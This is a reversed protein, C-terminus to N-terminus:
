FYRFHEDVTLQSFLLSEQPCYGIKGKILFDGKDAKWLGVLIKLLTSKGSGNEGAIGYVTGEDMSFSVGKLVKKKGFSKIMNEAKLIM